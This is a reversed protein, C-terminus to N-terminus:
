DGDASDDAEKELKELRQREIEAAVSQRIIASMDISGGEGPVVEDVTAKRVLGM